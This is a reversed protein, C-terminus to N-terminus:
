FFFGCVWKLRSASVTWLKASNIERRRCKVSIGEVLEKGAVLVNHTVVKGHVQGVRGRRRRRRRRQTREYGIDVLLSTNGCSTGDRGSGAAATAAVVSAVTM